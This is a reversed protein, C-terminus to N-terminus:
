TFCRGSDCSAGAHDLDFTAQDVSYIHDLPRRSGHLYLLGKGNKRGRARIFEDLDVARRFSEPEQAALNRWRGDSQLPCFTCASTPPVPLGASKITEVCMDRTIRKEILPWRNTNRKVRPDRMRGVDRPTYALALQAILPTNRGYRRHLEQEIPRIKWKDTCQRKAMANETFVPIPVSKERVYGELDGDKSQVNIWEMGFEGAWAEYQPVLANTEAKEGGTDAYVVIEARPKIAGWANLILLAVSPPGAGFSLYEIPTIMANEAM